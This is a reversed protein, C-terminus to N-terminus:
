DASLEHKGLATRIARSLEDAKYPKPLFGINDGLDNLAFPEGTDPYGSTLVVRLGKRLERARRALEDGRVGNPMVLDTFLLDVTDARQLLALAEPGDAATLVRYGLQRLHMAVVERVDVDDEVVLVTEHGRLKM